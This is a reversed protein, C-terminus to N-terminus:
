RNKVEKKNKSKYKNERIMLVISGVVGVLFVIPCVFLAIIFFVAEDGGKWFGDGFLYICLGYVFNHLLVGILFGVASSGTLLLFIRLKGKKKLKWSLFVLVGGLLFFLIGLGAVFPFLVRKITQPAPIVFYSVLIIFIGVLMWFLIKVKKNKM